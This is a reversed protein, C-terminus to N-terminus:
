RQRVGSFFEEIVEVNERSTHRLRNHSTAKLAQVLVLREPYINTIEKWKM